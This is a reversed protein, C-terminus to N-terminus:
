RLFILICKCRILCLKSLYNGIWGKTSLLFDFLDMGHFNTLCNKGQIIETVLRSQRFAVKDNQLDSLSVEFVHGKLHDSVTKTGQTRMVLTKMYSIHIESLFYQSFVLAKM